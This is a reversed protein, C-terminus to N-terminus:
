GYTTKTTKKTKAAAKRAIDLARRFDGRICPSACQGPEYRALFAITAEAVSSASSRCRFRQKEFLLRLTQRIIQPDRAGLEVADMYNKLASDTKNQMQYVRGVLSPAAWWSPISERAESLHKLADNLANDVAVKGAKKDEAILISRFAVGYHWYADQGAIREVEKLAQELDALNRTIM